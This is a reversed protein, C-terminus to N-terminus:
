TLIQAADEQQTQERLIKKLLFLSVRAVGQGGAGDLGRWHIAMLVLKVFLWAGEVLLFWDMCEPCHHRAPGAKSAQGRRDM